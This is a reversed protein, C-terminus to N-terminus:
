QNFGVVFSMTKELLEPGLSELYRETTKSDGHGLQTQIFHINQGSHAAHSAWSHRASYTSISSDIALDKAIAKLHNNAAKVQQKIIRVRDTENRAKSLQPFIYTDDSIGPRGWRDIIERMRKLVLVSRTTQNAKRETKKRVFSIYEKRKGDASPYTSVQGWKLRFIDSFNIGCGMYSFLFFDRYMMRFENVHSYNMIAEIEKRSLARKINESTPPKFELFPKKDTYGAKIAQNVLVKLNRTYIGITSRSLSRRKKTETQAWEVFSDLWSKTIQSFSAITKQPNDEMFRLFAKKADSYTGSYSIRGVETLAGMQVEFASWINTRDVKEGKFRRLFEKPEYGGMEILIDAAKSLKDLCIKQLNRRRGKAGLSTIEKWQDETAAVGVAVMRPIRNSIIRLRVAYTEDKRQKTTDLVACLSVGLSRLKDNDQEPHELSIFDSKKTM